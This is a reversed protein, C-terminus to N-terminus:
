GRGRQGRRGREANRKGKRRQYLKDKMDEYKAYQDETYLKKLEADRENMSKGILELDPRGESESRLEEMETMHALLIKKTEKMQSDNLELAVYLRTTLADVREEKTLKQGQRQREQRQQAEATVTGAIFVLLFLTILKKM